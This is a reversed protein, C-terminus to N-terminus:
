VLRELEGTRHLSALIHPRQLLAKGFKAVVDPGDISDKPSARVPGKAFELPVVPQSWVSYQIVFRRGRETALNSRVPSSM